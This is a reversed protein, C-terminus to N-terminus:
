RAHSCLRNHTADVILGYILHAGLASLHSFAPARLPDELGAVSVALEDGVLWLVTGFAAGRGFRLPPFKEAAGTYAAGAAVSFGYHMAAGIQEARKQALPQCRLRRWIQHATNADTRASLGFSHPDAFRVLVKMALGGLAGALAGICLRKMM